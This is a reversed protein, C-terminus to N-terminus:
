RKGESYSATFDQPPTTISMYVFLAKSDNLVGHTEGPPTRLVDGARIQMTRDGKLLMTASGQEVIWTQEGPHTHRESIAGPEMTVRTVTIQSDPSNKTWIVQVSRKGPNTLLGFDKETHRQVGTPSAAKAQESQANMLPPFLLAAIAFFVFATCSSSKFKM